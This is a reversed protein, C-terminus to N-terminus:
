SRKRVWKFQKRSDAGTQIAARVGRHPAARCPVTVNVLEDNIDKVAEWM